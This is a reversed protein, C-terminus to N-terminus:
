YARVLGGNISKVQILGCEAFQTVSYSMVLNNKLDERELTWDDENPSVYLLDYIIGFDINHTKIVHYVLYGNHEKEFEKVIEKEEDTLWFLIGLKHESRNLKNETKFENIINQHLNLLKMRKLAEEKVEKIEM